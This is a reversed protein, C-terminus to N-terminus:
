ARRFVDLKLVRDAEPTIEAGNAISHRIGNFVLDWLASNTQFNILDREVENGERDRLILQHSGVKGATKISTLDYTKVAGRGANVWDAGAAMKDGRPMVWGLLGALAIFLWQVWSTVFAFGSSFIFVLVVLAAVLLASYWQHRRTSYSWELAPGPGTPVKRANYPQAEKGRGGEENTPAAPPRPEGTQPDPKPPLDPNM